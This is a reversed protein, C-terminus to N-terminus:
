APLEEQEPQALRASNSGSTHGPAPNLGAASSILGNDIRQVGRRAAWRKNSGLVLM